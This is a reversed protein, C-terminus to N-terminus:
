KLGLATNTHIERGHLQSGHCSVGGSHSTLPAWVLPIKNHPLIGKQFWSFPWAWKGHVGGGVPPRAQMCWSPGVQERGGGAREEDEVEEAGPTLATARYCVSLFDAIPKKWGTRDKSWQSQSGGPLLGFWGVGESRGSVYVSCYPSLIDFSPWNVLAWLPPHKNPVHGEKMTFCEVEVDRM